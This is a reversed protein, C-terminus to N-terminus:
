KVQITPSTKLPVRNFVIFDLTRELGIKFGSINCEFNTM